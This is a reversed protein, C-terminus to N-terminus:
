NFLNFEAIDHHGAQWKLEIKMEQPVIWGFRGAFQFDGANSITKWTVKGTTRFLLCRCHRDADKGDIQGLIPIMPCPTTGRLLHAGCSLLYLGSGTRLYPASTTGSPEHWDAELDDEEEDGDDGGDGGGGGSGWGTGPIWANGGGGGYGSGDGGGGGSNDGIGWGPTISATEKEDHFPEGTFNGNISATFM